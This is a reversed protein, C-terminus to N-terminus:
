IGLPETARLEAAKDEALTDNLFTGTGSEVGALYKIKAPGRQIPCFEVHFHFYPHAGRVPRQRVMMMLPIPFGWLNDYKMRVAKIVRALEGREDGTLDPLSGFHRRPYIQIEGPFRAHFPVFAAFGATELVIRAGATLEAQLLACYLCRSEAAFYENAAALEREALPPLFPFSYIQGHPHPMTVGMAVGTNEFVYVYAAEPDQFLQRTRACWLDVVKRWHGAPMRAPQMRHDSHYLVVDCAGRAGTAHFFGPQKLVSEDFPEYEQSFAAFDNPYLFTDYASPVQGSGPCFPCWDEPMQPRNQRKATVGTWERLLPHWRLESV